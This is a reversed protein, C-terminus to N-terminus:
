EVIFICLCEKAKLYILFRISPIGYIQDLDIRRNLPLSKHIAYAMIVQFYQNCLIIIEEYLYCKMSRQTTLRCLRIHWYKKPLISM